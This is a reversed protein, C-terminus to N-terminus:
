DKRILYIKGQDTSFYLLGKPSQAINRIRDGLKAFIREEKVINANKDVTLINLHRLKLASVILKDKLESYIDKDYYIISSTAISPVYYKKAQLMGEKEKKGVPKKSWYERGYSIIPWGYNKSSQILNVEDGGKPGHEVEWLRNNKKDYFIGQPNRHGYSYIENLKTKDNVFPNDKPVTGDLNLRLITGAHNTLDQANDRVGREGVGFFLHGKEDFTIRSGYHVNENSISKTVLIDEFNTLQDNEFKAKALTTAGRSNINKSYTFFITKDKKFNPSIKVDLLGGQGVNFVDTVEYLKDIKKRKIDYLFINGNKVTLILKNESIFDMGWIVGQIDIMKVAKYEKANVYLFSFLFLISIILNKM